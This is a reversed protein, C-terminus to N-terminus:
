ILSKTYLEYFYSNKDKLLIDPKDYEKVEGKELVLIKDSNLVTKIRHAISILTSNKLLQDIAKQVIEEHKFDISATAEDLIIVKSKRLIARTICILQKEGISLNSGNESIVHSLHLPQKKVFEDFGIKKLVKYIEKDTHTGKPDFNYRLTGDLITSEQTIITLNERLKKLGISTIDVDDIYIKGSVPEILRFLCLALTSKGCGTRGVLGIHEGAKISFTVNKLVIETDNRYKACLNDFIIEGKSPWNNLGRDCKLVQPNESIIRKYSLCREMNTMTNEFNSYSNLFEIMDQQLVLSYTLLLGIVKSSFKDKYALAISVLFCIFFYELVNLCLLYWQNIGILFFRIKYNEDIIKQFNKIYLLQYNFARITTKGSITENILNLIPSNSIGELRNLEVSCNMYFRTIIFSLILFIPLTFLAQYQYLCCVIIAGFFSSGYATLTMFWYMTYTDVTTLDKSLKNFIRGKPVTDHFLNIPAKILSSIMRFHLNTSCKLSGSTILRTRLYNFITSAFSIFAYIIFFYNNSKEKQHEGWYGLWINSMIKLAQWIFLVIFLLLCTIFGGIYSFFMLFVKGKIIGVEKREERTLRKILGSEKFENYLKNEKINSAFNPNFITKRRIVNRNVKQQFESFFDQNLLSQYDGEWVIKGNRMYYIKNAYYVHQLSHTILIRTKDKLYNVICNKVINKGVSADLASIPDDFIYIDKNSYLARAINIRARQGGSLNIGKEGIETMDGGILAELDPNLECIELIKHYRESDFPLYFLINNKVTNNQIWAEQPVYSISGNLIVNSEERNLVIMNNLLAQVLSSKGSGVEGIICVFQKETVTFNINKLTFIKKINLNHSSDNVSLADEEGSEKYNENHNQNSEYKSNFEDKINKINNEVKDNIDDKINKKKQEEEENEDSSFFDKKINIDIKNLEICTNRRPVNKRIKIKKDIDEEHAIKNLNIELKKSKNIYNKNWTFNGNTIKLAINKKMTDDDYKIINSDDVEILELFKEIRRLSILTEVFIDLTTPLIKILSQFSTFIGLSTFIDEINFDDSLYQYLGISSVSMAIPALWLLTQSITTIYYRSELVNLEEGRAEQIKKLAIDDWGNLKIVKLNNIMETTVKMRLDSKKMHLKLYKSFQTRYYYNIILFLIMVIIGVIFAIGIYKYLLYNYAILLIPISFLNPFNMILRCLKFSDIQVLNYIEGSNLNTSPSLKLIKTFILNKLEIFSKNGLNNLHQSSKRQLIIVLLRILLYSFGIYIDKKSLKKNPESYIQIFLHFYYLNSINLFAIIISIIIMLTLQCSNIRLSTWLLPCRKIAKYKKKEWFNSMEKFYESSSHSSSFKGLHTSEIYVLNSLKIIRYAWFLFFNSIISSEDIPDKDVYGYKKIYERKKVQYEEQFKGRLSKVSVMSDKNVLLSDKM